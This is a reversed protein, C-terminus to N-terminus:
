GPTALALGGGKGLTIQRDQLAAINPRHVISLMATGPLRERLTRYLTEESEPDLNATAEDLFLFDPRTLLARAIALRQQEGGSLRQGWVMDVDLEPVLGPLGADTLAAAIAEQSYADAAAPYSIARRLTGLPIYPKQPLFMSRGPPAEVTGSGFPWIGALARFLTSKGAGSPGTLAATTGPQLQLSLDDLLVSRDPLELHLNSATYAPGAGATVTVTTGRTAHMADLTRGFTALREVTAAWDALSLYNNVFWSASGQVEGFAGSVRTLTGFSITKSFYLPAAAIFPFVGAFQAYFYVFANVLRNRSMIRRFNRVIATFRQNLITAENAEGKHLAVGEANERLRVLAFRFDAELRQRIYNLSVLPRGILQALATGIISYGLAVWVFYAPIVIGFLTIPFSLSWLLALFSILSVVNTILGFGLVLGNEVLEGIDDSIRQDPNDNGLTEPQLQIQYYARDSLWKAQYHATLWRRWRIQLWQRLYRGNVVILLFVAILPFLGPIVGFPGDASTEYSLTLRLFAPYDYSQLANFWAGNNLNLLLNIRVLAFDAALVLFLLGFASWKEESRLYPSALYWVSRLFRGFRM